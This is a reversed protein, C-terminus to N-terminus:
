PQRLSKASVFNLGTLRGAKQPSSKGRAIDEPDLLVLARTPCSEVCFLADM